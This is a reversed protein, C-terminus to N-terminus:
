VDPLGGCQEALRPEIRAIECRIYALHSAGATHFAELTRVFTSESSAVIAQFVSNIESSEIEIVLRLAGRLDEISDLSTMAAEMERELRPVASRWAAFQSEDWGGRGAAAKCLNLLEAHSQEQRALTRFFVAAEECNGFRQALQTYIQKARLELEVCRDLLEPAQMAPLRLTGTEALLSLFTRQRGAVLVRLFVYWGFSQITVFPHAVINRKRIAGVM